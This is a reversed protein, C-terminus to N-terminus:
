RDSTLFRSNPTSRRATWSSSPLIKTTRPLGSWPNCSTTSPCANLKTGDVWKGIVEAKKSDKASPQEVDVKQDVVHACTIAYRGNRGGDLILGLTGYEHSGLKGISLGGVVPRQKRRPNAALVAQTRAEIELAHPFNAPRVDELAPVGDRTPSPLVCVKVVYPTSGRFDQVDIPRPYLGSYPPPTDAGLGWKTRWSVLFASTLDIVIGQVSPFQSAKEAVERVSPDDNAVKILYDV